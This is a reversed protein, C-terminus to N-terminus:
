HMTDFAVDAVSISRVEAKDLLARLQAPSADYLVFGYVMPAAAIQKLAASAPLGVRNLLTDDSSRLQTTFSRLPDAVNPGSQADVAVIPAVVQSVGMQPNLDRAIFGAPAPGPKGPVAGAPASLTAHMPTLLYKGAVPGVENGFLGLRRSVQEVDAAPVPRDLEVVSMTMTSAPLGAILERSHDKTQRDGNIADSTKSPTPVDTVTFHGLLSQHATIDATSSLDFGPGVKAIAFSGNFDGTRSFTERIANKTAACCFYGPDGFSAGATLVEFKHAPHQSRAIRGTGYDVAAFAVGVMLAAILAVRVVGRRSARRVAKADFEPIDITEQERDMAEDSM